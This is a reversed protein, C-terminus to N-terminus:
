GISILIQEENSSVTQATRSLGNTFYYTTTYSFTVKQDDVFDFEFYGSKEPGDFTLKDTFKLGSEVDEYLFNVEAKKVNRQEFPVNEPRVTVVRHGQMDSRIFVRREHTSSEPIEALAGGKFLITPKYYVLRKDPNALSVTFTKAALDQQSFQFMTEKIINNDPDEYRVDIFIMEVDSWVVAPQITLERKQLDKFPDRITIQEEETPVWGMEVDKHNISRYILQYEFKRKTSDLIFLNWTKESTDKKFLFTDNLNIKNKADTYRLNVQVLSYEEWPIGDAIIPIPILSYLERPFVELNETTVIQPESELFLPREATNVDKFAIRYQAIVEDDMAGNEIHSAWELTDREIEEDLIINKSEGNYTLKVNLSEVNDTKFDARSIVSVLRRKFWDDDLNVPLIFDELAFNSERLIHTLGRLHAQPFIKRKVAVRQTLSVDLSKRDIRTMELQKFKLGLGGTAAATHVREAFAAAKDWGDEKEGVPDLSPEFFSKLVMDKVENVIQEFDSIAGAGPDGAILNDIEVEIVQNEILEDVVEEIQASFVPSSFGKAQSFHEYVRDWDARIRAAYARRLALYELEYVIGIPSMFGQLAKDLVTVGSQDLQVSFAAQNEGYLAPKAYHNIKLVFEPQGEAPQNTDEEEENDIPSEKGFLMMKVSGDIYQIPALIPVEDLDERNRLQAATNDLVDQSVGLNTDFNLFGGNGAEGRYKIVQIQPIMQGTNPDPRMTLHPDVPAFYKQKENAHDPFIVLGNIIHYPPNLYLM